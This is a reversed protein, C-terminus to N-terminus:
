KYIWDTQRHWGVAQKFIVKFDIIQKFLIRVFVECGSTNILFHFLSGSMDQQETCHQHWILSETETQTGWNLSYNISKIQTNKAERSNVTFGSDCARPTPKNKQVSDLNVQWWARSSIKAVLHPPTPVFRIGTGTVKPLCSPGTPATQWLKCVRTGTLLM